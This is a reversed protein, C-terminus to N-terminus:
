TEMQPVGLPTVDLFDAVQQASPHTLFPVCGLFPACMMQQLSALNEDFVSMQPDLRNAVWGAIPLGDALIAEQTL